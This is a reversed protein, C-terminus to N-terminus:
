GESGLDALERPEGLAFDDRPSMVSVLVALAPLCRAPLCKSRRAVPGIPSATDLPSFGVEACHHTRRRAGEVWSVPCRKAAVDFGRCTQDMSAVGPREATEQTGCRAAHEHSGLVTADQRHHKALVLVGPCGGSPRGFRPLSRLEARRRRSHVRPLRRDGPMWRHRNSARARSQAVSRAAVGVDGRFAEVVPVGHRVAAAVSPGDFGLARPGRLEAPVRGTSSRQRRYSFVSSSHSTQTVPPACSSRAAEDSERELLV